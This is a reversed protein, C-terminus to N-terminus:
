GRGNLPPSHGDRATDTDLHQQIFDRLGLTYTDGSRLFGDNHGGEINLFSKSSKGREYLQQGHHYPILEDDPSHIVLIPSRIKDVRELSPYRINSLWKVPLYPYRLAGMDPMSTFTSELILAAPSKELALWSAIGGGLSRGFIIIERPSLDQENILYNWATEADSYTGTEHPKGGSLGYGRYDIILVSLGLDYFIKLSELRHSINGANGHLFLLTRKSGKRSIYWAHISINDPTGLFIEEFEM